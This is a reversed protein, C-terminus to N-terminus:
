LLPKAIEGVHSCHGVDTSEVRRASCTEDRRFDAPQARAEVYLSSLESSIDQTLATAPEDLTAELIDSVRQDAPVGM